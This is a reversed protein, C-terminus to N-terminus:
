LSIAAARSSILAFLSRLARLLDSRTVAEFPISPRLARALSPVSLDTADRRLWHFRLASRIAAVRANRYMSAALSYPNRRILLPDDLYSNLSPPISTTSRAEIFPLHSRTEQSLAGPLLPFISVEETASDGSCMVVERACMACM